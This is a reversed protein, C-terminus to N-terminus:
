ARCLAAVVGVYHPLEPPSLPGTPGNGATYRYNDDYSQVNRSSYLTEKLVSDGPCATHFCSWCLALEGLAGGGSSSSSILPREGASHISGRIIIGDDGSLAKGCRRGNIGDCVVRTVTEKAM